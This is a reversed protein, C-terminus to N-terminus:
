NNPQANTDCSGDQSCNPAPKQAGDSPTPDDTTKQMDMQGASRPAGESPASDSASSQSDVPPSQSDSSTDQSDTPPKTPSPRPPETTTPSPSTTPVPKTPRPATTPRSPEEDTPEDPSLPGIDDINRVTDGIGANDIEPPKGNPGSLWVIHNDTGGANIREVADVNVWDDTGTVDIERCTGQLLINSRVAEITIIPQNDCLYDDTTNNSTIVAPARRAPPRPQPGSRLAPNSRVAPPAPTPAPARVPGCATLAVGLLVLGTGTFSAGFRRSRRVM